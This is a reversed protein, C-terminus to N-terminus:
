IRKASLCVEKIHKFEILIWYFFSCSIFVLAICDRLFSLFCNWGAVWSVTVVLSVENQAPIFLGIENLVNSSIFSSKFLIYTIKQTFSM